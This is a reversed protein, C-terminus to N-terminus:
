LPRAAQTPHTSPHQPSGVHAPQGAQPQQPQQPHLAAFEEQGVSAADGKMDINVGKPLVPPPQLAQVATQYAQVALAQWEPPFKMWEPMEFMASLKKQVVMAKRPDTDNPKPTFPSPPPVPPQMPQQPAQPMMPATM